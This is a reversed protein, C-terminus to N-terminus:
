LERVSIKKRLCERHIQKMTMRQYHLVDAIALANVGSDVAKLIDNIQGMGGSAIIPVSSFKSVESILNIDFGERTGEKDISTLLLEGAGLSICEKIWHMVDKGSNERGNNTYVEWSDPGVKKAAISLVIAQSGFINAIESILEPREVAATNIAVKDAGSSFLKKADDVSRIGGGVTIPIFVNNATQEVIHSLNNRGYLSAVTDIYLIEDAGDEYYKLAYVNPDGIVRLGELHVSKILNKGKVDLRAILRIQPM